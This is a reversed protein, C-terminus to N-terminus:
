GPSFRADVRFPSPTGRYIHGFPSVPTAKTVILGASARQRYYAVNMECPVNREGARTRTLPAMVIRNRLVYPGLNLSSLLKEM